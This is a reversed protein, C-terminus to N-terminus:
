FPLDKSSYADYVSPASNAGKNHERHAISTCEKQLESTLNSDSFDFVKVWKDHIKVSPIFAVLNGEKGRTVKLTCFFKDNVKVKVYAETYKDGHIHTYEILDIKM